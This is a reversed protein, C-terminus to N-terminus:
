GTRHEEGVLGRASSLDAVAKAGLLVEDAQGVGKKKPRCGAAVVVDVPLGRWFFNAAV